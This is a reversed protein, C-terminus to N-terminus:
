SSTRLFGLADPHKEVLTALMHHCMPPSTIFLRWGIRGDQIVMLLEILHSAPSHFSIFGFCEVDSPFTFDYQLRALGKQDWPMTLSTQGWDPPLHFQRFDEMMKIWWMMGNTGNTAFEPTRRVLSVPLDFVWEENRLQRCTGRLRGRDRICLMNRVLTHLEPMLDLYTPPPPPLDDGELVAASRKM